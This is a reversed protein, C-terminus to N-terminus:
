TADEVNIRRWKAEIFSYLSFLALGVALTGLLVSGFPLDRVFQLAEKLGPRYDLNASDGYEYGRFALMFSIIAFVFGRAILGIKSVLSVWAASDSPPQIYRMYRETLAKYWHAIAVGAFIAAVAFLVVRSGFLSGVFDTVLTENSGGGDANTLGLLSVIYLGLTGYTFASALLGGRVALGKPSYGHSDTDAIAQTLRWTVYGILGALLIGILFMGFPQDLIAQVAGKTGKETGSNFAALFAFFAVVLYIAGRSAYGARAFWRMGLHANTKSAEASGGSTTPTEM